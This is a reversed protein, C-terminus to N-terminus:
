FAFLKVILWFYLGDFLLLKINVLLHVIIGLLYGQNAVSCQLLLGNLICFTHKELKQLIINFIVQVLNDQM